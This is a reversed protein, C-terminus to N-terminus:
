FTRHTRVYSESDLVLGSQQLDLGSVAAVEGQLGEAALNEILKSVLIAEVTAQDVADPVLNGLLKGLKSSVVESANTIKLVIM